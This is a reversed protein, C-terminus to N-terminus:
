NKTVNKKDPVIKVPCSPVVKQLENMIETHQQTSLGAVQKLRNVIAILQSCSLITVLIFPGM